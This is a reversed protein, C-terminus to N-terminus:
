IEKNLYETLSDERTLNFKKRLRYRITEVGRVSINLLPAIEKTSLNMILYACMMRENLSLDSHRSSLRKMFNNHILDFQEEIRKLVDDSQINSDIKSNIIMLQRKSEKNSEGRLTSSVKLIEQKIETLMENKRVFNIMLNAMEQSKHQLDHHLKEKELEIIQQEQREKEAEYAKEMQHLENNKELELQHKKRKLRKEEWRYISWLFMLFLIGYCIYASISRYWPALIVFSISDESTTGDPHLIKVEFLYEGESLNSYEKINTTTYDSWNDHNLRYQYRIDDYLTFFSQGYEFRISNNEYKIEPTPKSKLFNATYILSDKPYTLYINQIFVSHNSSNKEKNDPTNFLAFGNENPIIFTSDTLTIINEFSPVLELLSQHIPYINTDTGKKYTNLSAICLEHPSLSIIKNGQEALYCYDSNGNLLKNLEESPVMKNTGADFQYMGKSTTFYIHDKLKIINTEKAGSLGENVGFKKVENVATLQNNLKVRMIKDGNQIWLIDRAEQEIRKCSDDIGAIKCVTTWNGKQKELLYMGDYVGVFMKTPDGLVQRCTWVGTLDSIRKLTNEEIKFIGRDHLCLLEKDIECLDWVQGSSNQVTRINPLNGDTLIPYETYYLGRNTGLYLTKNEVAAAYGTGYSHPYSYLNTFPSNICLYNIGSDLGAWLNGSDDFTISLVTNNRLGNNENFYKLTSNQTDILVIGKHITGMAIKNEHAAVCFVENKSMFDEAGTKFPTLSQKDWYYLGHYATVILMGEQYPVIGRIRERELIDAGQLPFLTNGILVKVGQSTGLYLTGNIVSSCDIKHDAPILTYKGNLYKIIYGDGQFYLINDIEHIGWVNGFAREAENLSDSLCHYTMQGSPAPQFYGFENIGGVYIRKQNNSSLVSRVNSRNKLQFVKWVSGDFQLLGNSNAFYTWTTNYPDIQWTQAGKGFLSKDFNIIFSSWESNAYIYPTCLLLFLIIFSKASRTM